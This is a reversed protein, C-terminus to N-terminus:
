TVRRSDRGAEYQPLGDGPTIWGAGSGVFIHASPTVPVPGDFVALAVEVVGAPARPSHFFLSSGCHRCFRRTTGNPATYAAVDAEGQLWHFAAEPVSVLTAFAAGHFRRCMSCHCHAAGGFADAAFRVAGCLCGGRYPGALAAERDSPEAAQPTASM